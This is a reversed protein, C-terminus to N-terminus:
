PTLAIYAPEGVKGPIYVCGTPAPPVTNLLGSRTLVELTIVTGPTLRGREALQRKAQEVQALGQAVNQPSAAPRFLPLAVALLVSGLFIALFLEVLTYARRTM